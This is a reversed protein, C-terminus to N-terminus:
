LHRSRKFSLPIASVRDEELIRSHTQRFIWIIPPTKDSFKERIFQDTCLRTSPSDVPSFDDSLNVRCLRTSALGTPSSDGLVKVRCLRQIKADRSSNFPVAIVHPSIQPDSHMARSSERFPNRQASSTSPKRRGRSLESLSGNKSGCIPAATERTREASSRCSRM